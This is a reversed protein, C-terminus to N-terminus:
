WWSSHSGALKSPVNYRQASGGSRSSDEEHEPGGYSSVSRNWAQNAARPQTHGTLNWHGSAGDGAHGLIAVSFRFNRRSPVNWSDYLAYDTHYDTDGARIPTPTRASFKKSLIQKGVSSTKSPNSYGYKSRNNPNTERQGAKEADFSYLTMPDNRASALQFLIGAGKMEAIRRQATASSSGLFDQLENKSFLREGFEARIPGLDAQAANSLQLDAELTPNISVRVVM